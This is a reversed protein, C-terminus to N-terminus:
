FNFWNDLKQLRAVDIAGSSNWWPPMKINMVYPKTNNVCRQNPKTQNTTKHTHGYMSDLPFLM